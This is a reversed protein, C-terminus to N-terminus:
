SNSITISPRGSIERDMAQKWRTQAGQQWMEEIRTAHMEELAEKFIRKSWSADIKETSTTFM